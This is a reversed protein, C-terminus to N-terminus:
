IKGKHIKQPKMWNQNEQNRKKHTKQPNKEIQKKNDNKISFFLLSNFISASLTLKWTFLNRKRQNNFLALLKM